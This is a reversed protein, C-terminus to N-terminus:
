ESFAGTVYGSIFRKIQPKGIRHAQRIRICESCASNRSAVDLPIKGAAQAADSHFPVGRSRCIQAIEAVPQLVGIQNDAVMFSVLATRGTISSQLLSLDILGNKVVPLIDVKFGKERLSLASELV